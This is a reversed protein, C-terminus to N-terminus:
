SATKAAAAQSLKQVEDALAKEKAANANIQDRLAAIKVRLAGTTEAHKARAAQNTAQTARLAELLTTVEQNLRVAVSKEQPNLLVVATSSGVQAVTTSNVASM